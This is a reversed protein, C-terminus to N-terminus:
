PMSARRRPAANARAQARGLLAGVREVVRAPERELRRGTVRRTEVEALALDEDRLRDREFADRTGHTEFLDLEVGFRLEPWYFDIEHGAMNFGTAPRPLGAEELLGLLYREAGSRTFVPPKYGSIARRLRKAGHHGRNRAIVSEVPGLEFLRLEETRELIRQLWDPEVVAAMDLLTRPVATVPIVRELARDEDILTRSRHIRIPRRDRRQVPGAVHIPAPQTSVLGWLWAASYHSLLAGPGCGLVAALCQGHPSLNTHGVAYVGTYLRHIRGSATARSIASHSYGLRAELQRISVVGHQRDALAALADHFGVEGDQPQWKSRMSLSIAAM